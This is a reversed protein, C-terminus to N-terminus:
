LALLAERPQLLTQQQQYCGELSLLYEKIALGGTYGGLKGNHQIVRHCPVIIPLPNRGNALGIARFGTQMGLQEAVWKYSQTQGRPIQRLIQWVSQQFATGQQFHVPLVSFDVAEGAFYRDLITKTQQMLPSSPSEENVIKSAEAQFALSHLGLEDSGTICLTGLVSHNYYLTSLPM